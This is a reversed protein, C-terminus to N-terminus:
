SGAVIIEGHMFPHVACHYKFDGVSTFRHEFVGGRDLRQSDWLSGVDATSTHQSQDLNTWRVTDGVQVHQPNPDFKFGTIRNAVTGPTHAPAPGGGCAALGLAAAIAM